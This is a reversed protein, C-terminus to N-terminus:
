FFKELGNQKNIGNKTNFTSEVPDLDSIPIDKKTEKVDWSKKNDDLTEGAQRLTGEEDFKDKTICGVLWVKNEKLHAKAFLHFDCPNDLQQENVECRWQEKPAYNVLQTKLSVNKGNVIFDFDDKSGIHTDEEYQINNDDLYKRLALRGVEGALKQAYEGGFLNHQNYKRVNANAEKLMDETIDEEIWEAVSTM